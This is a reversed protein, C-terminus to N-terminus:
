RCPARRSWRCGPCSTGRTTRRDGGPRRRRHRESGSCGSPAAPLPLSRSRTRRRLGTRLWRGDARRPRSEGAVDTPHPALGTQVGGAVASGSDSGAWGPSRRCPEACTWCVQMKQVSEAPLRRPWRPQASRSRVSLPHGQDAQLVVESDQLPGAAVGDADPGYLAVIGWGAGFASNLSASARASRRGQKMRAGAATSRRTSPSCASCNNPSM